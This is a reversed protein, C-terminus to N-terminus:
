AVAAPVPEVPMRRAQSPDARPHDTRHHGGRSERRRLAARTVLSAVEYAVRGPVSKSLPQRLEELTGLADRLGPGSREVGVRDWMLQRVDDIEPVWDLPLEHLGRTWSGPRLERGAQEVDRAALASFVLGELLSNSALRNAGHVGTSAVEGLAWLGPVSTRGDSGADIGGMHFHAAPSVPVLDHGPDLGAERAHRAATPFRDALDTISRLDLFAGAGRRHQRWISRAVVDRPALEADPHEDLMFRRGLRDVLPAGDGRLAETLLPMPDSGVMLATPHFQVFELDVLRAGARAAAALGAGTSGPPNTTPRYLRGIGGTALVVAPATLAVVEGAPDAAVVGTVGHEDRLLDILHWGELLTVSPRSRAAATLTAQVTAGTADGDAHVIRRRRHGAERGLQLSGTADRDFPAGLALLREIARPGGETLVDVARRVAIGGAVAVTDEAHVAPRDDPGIAAAIGGQALSTSGDHGATLVTARPLSLAVSLGAVGSGVVLPGDVALRDITV